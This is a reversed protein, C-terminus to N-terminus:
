RTRTGQEKYREYHKAVERGLHFHRMRHPRLAGSFTKPIHLLEHILIKTQEEFTLYDFHESIVEIVYHPKLGLALQWVTPFSWIRARARSVSGFSRVCRLQSFTIHGMDVKTLIEDIRRSIDDALKFKM